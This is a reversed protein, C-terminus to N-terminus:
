VEAGNDEGHAQAKLGTTGTSATTTMSGPPGLVFWARCSGNDGNTSTTADGHGPFKDDRKPPIRETRFGGPWSRLLNSRLTVIRPM